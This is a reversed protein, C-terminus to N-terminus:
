CQAHSPSCALHSLWNMLLFLATTCYLVSHYPLPLFFLSSSVSEKKDPQRQACELHLPQLSFPTSECLLQPVLPFSSVLLFDEQQYLLASIKNFFLINYNPFPLLGQHLCVLNLPCLDCCLVNFCVLLVSSVLAVTVM